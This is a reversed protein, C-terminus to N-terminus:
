GHFEIFHFFHFTDFNFVSHHFNQFPFNTLECKINILMDCMSILMDCMSILMDFKSESISENPFFSLFFFFLSIQLGDASIWILTIVPEFEVGMVKDGWKKDATSRWCMIVRKLGQLQSWQVLRYWWGPNSHVQSYNYHLISWMGWFQLVPAKGDSALSQM